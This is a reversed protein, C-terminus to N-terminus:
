AADSANSAERAAVQQLTWGQGSLDATMAPDIPVALYMNNGYLYAGSTIGIVQGHVNLLAGGSSGQSIDATNQIVPLDYREVERTRNSVIGSSICLGLGLPNGITYVVDGNQVTDRSAMELASFAPSKVGSLSTDSVQLVAIDIGPDYWLVKEVSYQEGTSLTAAAYVAGDISHYNTVALGQSSIFFGSASASPEQSRIEEQTAYTDLCFVASTYRDAVQRASLERGDLGLASVASAQVAGQAVLSDLLTSDGGKRPFTLASLATQFLDGRTFGDYSGSILGIHQAFLAAGDHTFDGAQDSYGLLRLLMACWDDATVAREPAFSTESVGSIWGQSAAYRICPAAWAPLDTFSSAAGAAKAAAERGALRVLLVAAEARTASRNEEYGAGTGKVIGLTSLTDAARLADGSLAPTSVSLGLLLALACLLSLAKKKM